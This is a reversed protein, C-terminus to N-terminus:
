NPAFNKLRRPRQVTEIYLVPRQIFLSLARVNSPFHPMGPESGGVQVRVGCRLLATVDMEARRFWEKRREIKTDETLAIIVLSGDKSDRVSVNEGDRSVTTGKV